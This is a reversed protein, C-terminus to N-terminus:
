GIDYIKDSIEYWNLANFKCIRAICLIVCNFQMDDYM